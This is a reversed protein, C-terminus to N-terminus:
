FTHSYSRSIGYDCVVSWGVAGHPLTVSYKCYCSMLLVIFAFCRAREDIRSVWGPLSSMLIRSGPKTNIRKGMPKSKLSAIIVYNDIKM